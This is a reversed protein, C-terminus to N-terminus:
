LPLFPFLAPRRRMTLCGFFRLFLLCFHCSPAQSRRLPPHDSRPRRWIISPSHGDGIQNHLSLPFSLHKAMGAANQHRDFPTFFSFFFPPAAAIRGRPPSPFFFFSKGITFDTRRQGKMITFARFSLFFSFFWDEGAQHIEKSPSPPFLLSFPVRGDKRRFNIIPAFPSFPNPPFAWRLDCIMRGSSSVTLATEINPAADAVYCPFSPLPTNNGFRHVHSFFFLPPYISVSL